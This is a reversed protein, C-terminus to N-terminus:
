YYCGPINFILCVDPCIVRSVEVASNSKLAPIGSGFRQCIRGNALFDVFLGEATSVHITSAGEANKSISFVTGDLLSCTLHPNKKDKIPLTWSIDLDPYNLL